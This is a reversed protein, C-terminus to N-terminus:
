LFLARHSSVSTDKNSSNKHQSRSGVIKKGTSVVILKFLLRLLTLFFFFILVPFHFVLKEFISSMNLTERFKVTNESVNESNKFLVFVM